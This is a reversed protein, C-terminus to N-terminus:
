ERHVLGCGAATRWLRRIQQGASNRNHAGRLRCAEVLREGALACAAAEVASVNIRCIKWLLHQVTGSQFGQFNGVLFGKDRFSEDCLWARSIACTDASKAAYAWLFTEKDARSVPSVSQM